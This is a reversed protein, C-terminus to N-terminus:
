TILNEHECGAWSLANNLFTSFQCSTVALGGPYSFFPGQAPGRLRLYQMTIFVPCYETGSAPISVVIPPGSYHKFKYFTINGSAPSVIVQSFQLNNPSQTAEGVRLFAYFMIIFMSRCLSVEYQLKAIRPSANLIKKLIDVTIPLRTDM